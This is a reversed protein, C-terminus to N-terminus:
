DGPHVILVGVYCALLEQFKHSLKGNVTHEEANSFALVILLFVLLGTM